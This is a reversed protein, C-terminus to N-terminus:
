KAIINIAVFAIIVAAIALFLIYYANANLVPQRLQLWTGVVWALLTMFLFSTRALEEGFKSM